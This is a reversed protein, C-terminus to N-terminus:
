ELGMVVEDGVGWSDGRDKSIELGTVPGLSATDDESQVESTRRSRRGGSGTGASYASVSISRPSATMDDYRNYKIINSKISSGGGGGNETIRRRLSPVRFRMSRSSTSLVSSTDEKESVAAANELDRDHDTEAEERIDNLTDNLPRRTIEPTTTTVVPSALTSVGPRPPLAPRM